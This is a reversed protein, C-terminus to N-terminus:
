SPIPKAVAVVIGVIRHRKSNFPISEYEKGTLSTQSLLMNDELDFRKVMYSEDNPGPLFQAVIVIHDIDATNTKYFLVYDDERISTPTAQEMSHGHVKAWAYQRENNIVVRRSGMHAPYVNCQKGQLFVQHLETKEHNPSDIWIIGNTGAEVDEYIPLWPIQIYGEPAATINDSTTSIYSTSVPDTKIVQMTTHNINPLPILHAENLDNHIQEICIECEFAKKYNSEAKLDRVMPTLISLALELSRLSLNKNEEQLQILGLFWLTMAQNWNLGRMHFGEIAETALHTADGVKEINLYAFALYFRCFPQANCHLCDAKKIEDSLDQIFEIAKLRDDIMDLSRREWSLTAQNKHDLRRLIAVFNNKM